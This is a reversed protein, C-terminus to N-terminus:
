SSAIMVRGVFVFSNSIFDLSKVCYSHDFMLAGVSGLTKLVYNM